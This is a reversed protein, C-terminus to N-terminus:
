NGFLRNFFGRSTKKKHEIAGCPTGQPNLYLEETLVLARKVGASASRVSMTAGTINIIDRNIRIPDDSQKGKYQYMFRPKRIDAGRSERYILMEVQSVKGSPTIGVMYTMPRYKGITNQISTYGDITGDTEGIFFEFSTEPFKWGIRREICSKQEPTIKRSEAQITKSQPLLLKLAEDETLYVVEKGIEQTTLWRGLEEDFIRDRIEAGYSQPIAQTSLLLIVAIITFLPHSM